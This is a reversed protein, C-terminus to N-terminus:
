RSQLEESAVREYEHVYVWILEKDHPFKVRVDGPYKVGLTHVVGENGAQFFGRACNNLVKITDGVAIEV